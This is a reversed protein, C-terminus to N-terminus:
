GLVEGKAFRILREFRGQDAERLAAIYESRAEGMSVLDVNGWPLASSGNFELLLDACLRAHRGNGNPFPHIWVLKHHFRTALEPWGYVQNDIWYSTNDCLLKLQTQIDHPAVGLTTERQRFTGAWRWTDDFMRAHLNKHGTPTLLEKRLRASSRAWAIAKTVNTQEFENLQAQM